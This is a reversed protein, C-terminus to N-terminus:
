QYNFFEKGYNFLLHHNLLRRFMKINKKREDTELTNLFTVINKFGRKIRAWSYVKQDELYFLYSVKLFKDNSTFVNGFPLYYFYELDVRNTPRTGILGSTLGFLFLSDVRLCIFHM